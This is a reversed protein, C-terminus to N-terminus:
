PVSSQSPSGSPLVCATTYCSSKFSFCAICHLFSLRKLLHQQSISLPFFIFRSVSRIGKGLHVSFHIVSIFAFVCVIFNRSSLMPSLTSLGGYLSSKKSLVDSACDM